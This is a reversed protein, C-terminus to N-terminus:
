AFVTSLSEVTSIHAVSKETSKMEAIALGVVPLLDDLLKGIKSDHRATLSSFNSFCEPLSSRSGVRYIQRRKAKMGIKIGSIALSSLSGPVSGICVDVHRSM